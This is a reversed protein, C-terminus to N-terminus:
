VVNNDCIKVLSFVMMTQTSPLKELIDSSKKKESATTLAPHDTRAPSFYGLKWPSDHRLAPVSAGGFPPDRDSSDM